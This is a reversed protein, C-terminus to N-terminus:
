AFANVACYKGLKSAMISVNWVSRLKVFSSSTAFILSLWKLAPSASILRDISSPRRMHSPMCMLKFPIEMPGTLELFVRM